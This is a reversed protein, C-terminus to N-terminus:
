CLDVNTLLQIFNSDIEVVLSDIRLNLLFEVTDTIVRGAPEDTLAM